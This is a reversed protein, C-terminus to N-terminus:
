DFLMRRAALQQKVSPESLGQGGPLGLWEIYAAVYSPKV